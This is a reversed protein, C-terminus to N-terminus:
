DSAGGGWRVKKSPMESEPEMEGRALEEMDEGSLEEMVAEDLAQELAAIRGAVRSVAQSPTVTASAVSKTGNALQRRYGNLIARFARELAAVREELRQVGEDNAKPAVEAAPADSAASSHIENELEQMVTRLDDGYLSHREELYGYLFLRDMVWNIRRPVGASWRYVVDFIEPDLVPDDMWGSAELRHVIYDRTEGASLPDLHHSAIVRQRLQAMSPESLLRKFETQGILFLQMLARGGAEMNSLIRLEELAQPSFTQAEDVVLLAGERYAPDELLTAELDQLLAAKSRGEYPRGFAAAVMPLVAQADLNAAALRATALPREELEAFLTQILLTKGTGVDGTIVVFGERQELGYLLYSLARRHGESPYLLRRDPMLQFPRRNLGYFSEYM